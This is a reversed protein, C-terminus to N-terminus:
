TCRPWSTAWGRRSNKGGSSAAALCWCSIDAMFAFAASFRTLQQYYRKMEPATEVNVAAFHSGTM